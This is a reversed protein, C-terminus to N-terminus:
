MERPTTGFDKEGAFGALHEIMALGKDEFPSKVVVEVDHIHL